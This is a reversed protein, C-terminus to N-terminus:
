LKKEMRPFPWAPWSWNLFILVKPVVIHTTDRRVNTEANPAHMNNWKWMKLRCGKLVRSWFDEHWLKGVCLQGIEWIIKENHTTLDCSIELDKPTSITGRHALLQLHLQPCLVTLEVSRGGLCLQHEFQMSWRGPPDFTKLLPSVKIEM